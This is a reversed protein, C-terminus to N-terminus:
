RGAPSDARSHRFFCAGHDRSREHREIFMISVGKDKGTLACGGHLVHKAAEAGERSTKLGGGAGAGAGAPFGPQRRQPPAHRREHPQLFQMDLDLFGWGELALM